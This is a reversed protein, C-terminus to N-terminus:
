EHTYQWETQFRLRLTKLLPRWRGLARLAELCATKQGRTKTRSSSASPPPPMSHPPSPSSSSPVSTAVLLLRNITSLLEFIKMDLLVIKEVLAALDMAEGERGHEQRWPGEEPAPSVTKLGLAALVPEASQDCLRLLSAQDEEEETGLGAEREREEVGGGGQREVWERRGVAALVEHLSQFVEMVEVSSPFTDETCAGGQAQAKGKRGGEQKSPGGPGGYEGNGTSLDAAPVLWAAGTRGGDRGRGRGRRGTRGALARDKEPRGWGGEVGRLRLDWPRAPLLPRPGSGISGRGMRRAPRISLPVSPFPAHLQHGFAQAQFLAHTSVPLTSGPLSSPSSPSSTSPSSTSSTSASRDRREGRLPTSPATSPPSFYGGGRGAGGGAGPSAVGATSVRRVHAWRGERTFVLPAHEVGTRTRYSLRLSREDYRRLLFTGPPKARLLREAAERGM